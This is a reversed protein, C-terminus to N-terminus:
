KSELLKDAPTEEAALAGSFLHVPLDHPKGLRVLEDRLQGTTALQAYRIQLAYQAKRQTNADALGTRLRDLSIEGAKLTGGAEIKQVRSLEFEPPSGTGTLEFAEANDEQMPVLQWELHAHTITHGGVNLNVWLPRDWHSLVVAQIRDGSKELKLELPTEARTIQPPAPQTVEVTVADGRVQGFGADSWSEDKWKPQYSFAIRYTGKSLLPYRAWGRNFRRITLRSEASPPLESTPQTGRARSDVAAYVDADRDIPEVRVDVQEGKPDTVVLFDAADMMAAVQQTETVAPQTAPQTAPVAWPVRLPSGTPNQAIVTLDLPEDWAISRKSVELRVRAGLLIASELESLLDRASLAAEVNGRDEAARRLEPFAVPGWEALQKIAARRKTVTPHNLDRIARRIEQASPPAVAPHTAPQSTQTDAIATACFAFLLM